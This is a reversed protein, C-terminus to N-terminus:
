AALRGVLRNLRREIDDNSSHRPWHGGRALLWRVRYLDMGLFAAIEEASCREAAFARIAEAKM